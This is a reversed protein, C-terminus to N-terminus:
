IFNKIKNKINKRARDVSEKVSQITCGDIESIKAYTMNFEYHYLFRHKQPESLENIANWLVEKVMTNNVIDTTSLPTHLLRQYVTNENQESHEIYRSMINSAKHEWSAFSNFAIYDSYNMEIECFFRKDSYSIFYHKDNGIIRTKHVGFFQLFVEKTVEVIQKTKRTNLFCIHYTLLGDKNIIKAKYEIELNMKHGGQNKSYFILFPPGRPKFRILLIFFSNLRTHVFVECEGKVRRFKICTNFVINKM